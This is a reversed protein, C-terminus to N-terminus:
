ATAIIPIPGIVAVAAVITTAGGVASAVIRMTYTITM